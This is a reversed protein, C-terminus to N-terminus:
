RGCPDTLAHARSRTSGVVHSLFYRANDGMKGGGILEFRTGTVRGGALLGADRLYRTLEPPGLAEPSTPFATM